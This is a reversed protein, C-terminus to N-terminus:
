KPKVTPNRKEMIADKVDDETNIKGQDVIWEHAMIENIKIRDKPNYELM